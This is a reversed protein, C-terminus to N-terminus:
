NILSRTIKRSTKGRSGAAATFTFGTDRAVLARSKSCQEQVGQLSRRTVLNDSRQVRFRIASLVCHRKTRNLKQSKITRFTHYNRRSKRRVKTQLMIENQQRQSEDNEGSCNLAVSCALKVSSSLIILICYFHSHYHCDDM